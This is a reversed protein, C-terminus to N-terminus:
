QKLIPHYSQYYCIKHIPLDDFRHRLADSITDGDENPFAIELDKCGEWIDEADEEGRECDVMKCESPLAINRLSMYRDEDAKLTTVNESLELSVLCKNEGVISMPVKTVLPPVRFNQLNCEHFAEKQITELTDPLHVENLGECQEFARDEIRKLSSPLNFSVLSKCGSFVSHGIIRLGESFAVEMLSCCHWFVASDFTQIGPPINIRQLSYCKYFVFKGLRQLGQPLVIEELNECTDFAETGIM